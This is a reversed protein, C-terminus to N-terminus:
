EAYFGPLSVTGKGVESFLFKVFKSVYYSAALIVAIFFLNPLYSTLGNWVIRLPAMLYALLIASYGQTWPFFSTVLAVYGYLLSLSLALRIVRSALRLLSSIRDAPLLELQQIRISRIYVGHWSELKVYFMSFGVSLLKFIALLLATAIVSYLGGFLVTRLSHQERLALAGNRIALAYEQALQQRTEGALQADADTVTALIVDGSVIATTTEAEETHVARIQAPSEHSLAEVREAIAKARDEPSFTFMRAPVYFLTKGGVVVPAGLPRANGAVERQPTAQLDAYAPIARASVLVDLAIFFLAYKLYRSRM